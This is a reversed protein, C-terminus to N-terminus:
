LSGSIIAAMSFSLFFIVFISKEEFICESLINAGGGLPDSDANTDMM